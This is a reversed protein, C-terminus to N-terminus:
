GRPRPGSQELALGALRAFHLLGEQADEPFVPRSPARDIYLVGMVQGHAEVPVLMQHRDGLAARLRTLSPLGPAPVFGAAVDITRAHDVLETLADRPAGALLFNFHRMLQQAGLGETARAALQARNATVLALVARDAGLTRGAGELALDLVTTSAAQLAILSVIRRAVDLEALPDPEADGAPADAGADMARSAQPIRQAADDCGYFGAIRAAEKAHAAVVPAVEIVGLKLLKAYDRVASRARESDWGGEAAEALRYAAVILGERSDARVGDARASAVLSPLTWERALMQTLSRLRFGLMDMEIQEPAGRQERLARDLRIGVEGSFCWFAMEGIHSLLTAIFVEEPSADGRAQAAHRAHVAAHFCRAMEAAVRERVGGALFADILAVSVAINRVTDFGLVVIARSITSVRHSEGRFFVSNAMRLVRTTMGADRLIIRGLASAPSAEDGAVEGIAALTASFIPMDQARLRAVWASLPDTAAVSPASM